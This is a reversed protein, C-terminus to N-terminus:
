GGVKLGNEGFDTLIGLCDVEGWQASPAESPDRFDCQRFFGVRKDIRGVRRRHV